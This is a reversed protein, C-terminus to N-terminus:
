KPALVKPGVCAMRGVDVAEAFLAIGLLDTGVAGTGTWVAPATRLPLSRLALGLLFVAATRPWRAVALVPRVRPQM